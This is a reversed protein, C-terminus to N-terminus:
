KCYKKIMRILVDGHCKNPACWCGLEKNKLECLQDLLNDPSNKIHLEYLELSSDIDYNKLVFPNEWKSAYTGNVFFNMDRGIYITNNKEEWEAFDKIGRKNLEKKRINVVSM